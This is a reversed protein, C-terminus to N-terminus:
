GTGEKSDGVLSYLKTGNEKEYKVCWLLWQASVLTWLTAGISLTISTAIALGLMGPEPQEKTLAIAREVSAFTYFFSSAMLALGVVTILYLILYINRPGCAEQWQSAFCVTGDRIMSRFAKVLVLGMWVGLPLM